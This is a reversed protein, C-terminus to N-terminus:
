WEEVFGDPLDPLYAWYDISDSNHTGQAWDNQSSIWLEISYRNNSPLKNSHCCFYYGTEAPPQEIPNWAMKNHGPFRTM